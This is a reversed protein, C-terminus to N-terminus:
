NYSAGQINVMFGRKYTYFWELMKQTFAVLKWRCWCANIQCVDQSCVPRNIVTLFLGYVCEPFGCIEVFLPRPRFPTEKVNIKQSCPKLFSRELIFTISNTLNVHNNTRSGPAPPLHPSAPDM